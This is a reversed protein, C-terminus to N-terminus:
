EGNKSTESANLQTDELSINDSIVEREKWNQIKMSELADTMKVENKSKINYIVGEPVDINEIAFPTKQAEKPKEFFDKGIVMMIKEYDGYFYEQLLPIIKDFFIDKLINAEEKKSIDIEEIDNGDKDKIMFYSHGILHDRDKLVEIRSNITELLDKFSCPVFDGNKIKYDALLEPKPMMEEFSFRRRLATDLAEVSRDATNMTGIIYLNKPVTFEENSYPLKVSLKERKDEEILTILEGFINAVNGRNIEDIILVYNNIHSSANNNKTSEINKEITGYNQLGFDKKMVNIIAKRYNDLGKGPTGPEGKYVRYLQEKNFTKSSQSKDRVGVTRDCLEINFSKGKQLQPINLSGKQVLSNELNSWAKEFNDVFSHSSAAESIRKFIGPKIDYTLDGKENTEPKIGEIFDEYSMSQHFTTFVIRGDKKLENFKKELEKRQEKEDKRNTLTDLEVKSLLRELARDVTHYTKGTGPPGYLILNLPFTENMKDYDSEDKDEKKDEVRQKENEFVKVEQTDDNEVIFYKNFENTLSSGDIGEEKLNQAVLDIICNMYVHMGLDRRTIDEPLVLKSKYFDQLQNYNNDADINFVNKLLFRWLKYNVPYEDPKQLNKIISFLNLIAYPIKKVQLKSSDIYYRIISDVDNSTSAKKLENFLDMIDKKIGTDTGINAIFNDLHFIKDIKSIFKKVERKDNIIFSGDTNRLEEVVKELGNEKISQERQALWNQENSLHKDYSSKYNKKVDDLSLSSVSKFINKLKRGIEKKMKAM